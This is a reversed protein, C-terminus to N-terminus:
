CKRTASGPACSSCASRSGPCRRSATASAGSPAGSAGSARAAAVSPMPGRRRRRSPREVAPRRRAAPRRPRPRPGCDGREPRRRHRAGTRLEGVRGVPRQRSAGNGSRSREDGPLDGGTPAAGAAGAGPRAPRDPRRGPALAAPHDAAAGAAVSGARAHAGRGDSARRPHSRARDPTGRPWRAHDSACVEEPVRNFGVSPAINWRHTTYRADTAPYRMRRAARRTPTRRPGSEGHRDLKENVGGIQSSFAATRIAAGGVAARLRAMGGLAAPDLAPAAPRACRQDDLRGRGDGFALRQRADGAPLAPVAAREHGGVGDGGRHRQEDAPEDYSEGERGHVQEHRQGGHQRELCAVEVVAVVEDQAPGREVLGRGQELEGPEGRDRRRHDAALRELRVHEDDEPQDEAQREGEGPGAGPRRDPPQDGVSRHRTM